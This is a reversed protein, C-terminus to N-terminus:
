KLAHIKCLIKFKYTSKSRQCLHCLEINNETLAKELLNNLISYRQKIMYIQCLGLSGRYCALTGTNYQLTIYKDNQEVIHFYAFVSLNLFYLATAIHCVLKVWSGPYLESSYIGHLELLDNVENLLKIFKLQLNQTLYYYCTVAIVTPVSLTVATYEMFDLFNNDQVHTYNYFIDFTVISATFFYM